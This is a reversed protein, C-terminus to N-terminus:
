NFRSNKLFKFRKSLIGNLFHTKRCKNLLSHLLNIGIGKHKNSRFGLIKILKFLVVIRKDKFRHVMQKHFLDGGLSYCYM